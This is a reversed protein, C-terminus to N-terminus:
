NVAELLGAEEWAMMGGKLIVVKEFGNDLLLKAARLSRRGTYDVIVITRNRPARPAKSFLKSLPFLQAEPIHGRKYERPERVDMVFPRQKTGHLQQWLQQPTIQPVDVTPMEANYLPIEIPYDPRPLNQCEKFVRVGSEYICIAPDLVKYFLYEIANDEDLFHDEGLYNYFGTSKMVKLIEDKVRVMYVDGNRERYTHVVSELMHIGSFDCQNVSHMRLLLYRQTPNKALHNFITEEVHNVAGFYLDGSIDIIGLQPCGHKEPQPIFHQFNDDPLVAHVKPASTNLIYTAFSLLIGALVAFELRLFLTGFFTVLMIAGDGWTGQLIRKIEAQDIMGYATVILVGALAARPLYAALPALLFLAIVVFLSAFVAALGTKAGAKFNVASVSFSGSCPYGSFLGVCINALGQGVFEQNSDLRQGTQTALSRSIATTQVLGIAGVALAGTSLEAILDLNLLPLEALPPLSSPLQGIVTVGQQDLGLIFVAGSAVVMSVLPAPLKPLLRRLSIILIMTGIGLAATALHTYHLNTGIGYITQTINRSEIDLKLLPRLQNIGILVGAGTSFGVIVSHSVFNVVMGLQAMGMALQFLGVMVALVGAAVIFEPTGPTATTLLTSLVLLSLANTPGTFNQHSSGWLGGIIAGVIATYLGMEPPLEAILAFAIAQPLLIVAVTIGAMLDARINDRNYHKFFKIPQLLYLPIHKPLKM